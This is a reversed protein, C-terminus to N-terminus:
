KPLTESSKPHEIKPAMGATIDILEYYTTGHLVKYFKVKLKVQKEKSLGPHVGVLSIGQGNIFGVHTVSVFDKKYAVESLVVNDIQGEVIRFPEAPKGFTGCGTIVVLSSWLALLALRHRQM